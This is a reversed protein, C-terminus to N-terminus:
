QKAGHKKESLSKPRKKPLIPNNLLYSYERGKISLKFASGDRKIKNKRVLIWRFYLKFKEEICYFIKLNKILNYIAKM